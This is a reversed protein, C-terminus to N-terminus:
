EGQRMIQENENNMDEVYDSERILGDRRAGALVEDDVVCGFYKDDLDPYWHQTEGVHAWLWHQAIPSAPMFVPSGSGADMIRFDFDRGYFEQKGKMELWKSPGRKVKERGRVNEADWDPKLSHRGISRLTQAMEEVYSKRKM